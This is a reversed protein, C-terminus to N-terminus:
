QLLSQKKIKQISRTKTPRSIEAKPTFSPLSPLSDLMPQLDGIIVTKQRKKRKKEEIEANKVANLASIFDSHLIGSFAEV